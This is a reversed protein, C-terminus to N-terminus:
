EKSRIINFRRQVLSMFALVLALLIFAGPITGWFESPKIFGHLNLKIVWLGYRAPLSISEFSILERFFSFLLLTGTFVGMIRLNSICLDRWDNVKVAVTRSILLSSVPVLYLVFSLTMAIVPSYFILLQKALVTGFVLFVLMMIESLEQMLLKEAAIQMATGLILLVDAVIVLVLMYGFRAPSPVLISLLSGIFLFVHHYTKM